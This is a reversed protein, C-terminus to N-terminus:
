CAERGSLRERAEYLMGAEWGACWAEHIVAPDAPRLITHQYWDAFTKERAEMAVEPPPAPDPM